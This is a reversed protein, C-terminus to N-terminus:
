ENNGTNTGNNRRKYNEPCNDHDPIPENPKIHSHMVGYRHYSCIPCKDPFHKCFRELMSEKNFLKTISRFINM